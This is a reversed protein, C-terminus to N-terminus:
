GPVFYFSIALIIYVALLQAGEFWNSEGDYSIMEVILVSLVIAALEFANFVLSMPNGMVWSIMVLLPAVFLAIQTSSGVAIGLALDMQNRHAVLIAASHEAANGIIAVVIVGVFLETLGITKTVAEIEGVLMESFFAIFVTSVVLAILAVKRSMAPKHQHEDTHQVTFLPKHTKLMFIFSILYVAMLVFSTWLSLRAVDAHGERLSGHVALDFVAPMILGIAAIFLMTSNASSVTRSFVQKERGIGGVLISLGLVLLINGIISGSLSAKVVEIHGTRLAFFAIILEAANGMTANLIGGVAPGSYIALTETANGLIGALPIIALCAFIFIALPSAHTFHLVFAVPVALLLLNLWLNQPLFPLKRWISKSRTNAM